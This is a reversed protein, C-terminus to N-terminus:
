ARSLVTGASHSTTSRLGCTKIFQLKIMSQLREALQPKMEAGNGAIRNM